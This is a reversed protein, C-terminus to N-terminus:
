LNKRTAVHTHVHHYQFTSDKLVITYYVDVHSLFFDGLPGPNRPDQTRIAPSGPKLFLHGLYTLTWIVGLRLLRWTHVHIHIHFTVQPVALNITQILATALGALLMTSNREHFLVHLLLLFSSFLFPIFHHKFWRKIALLVCVKLAFLRTLGMPQSPEHNPPVRPDQEYLLVYNDYVYKRYVNYIYHLNSYTCTNKISQQSCFCCTTWISFVLVGM